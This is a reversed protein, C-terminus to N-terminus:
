MALKLNPKLLKVRAAFRFVKPAKVRPLWRKPALHREKLLAFADEYADAATGKFSSCGFLLEVDTEDVYATLAGWAIRLVDPDRVEPHICFRGMEVMRGEYSGFAGLDYFQATYTGAIEAGSGLPLLRFCCVLTGGADEVLVHMCRDDFEDRDFAGEAGRFCLTRLRVAADIDEQERSFRVAYRGRQFGTM